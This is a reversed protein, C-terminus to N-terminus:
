KPGVVSSHVKWWAENDADSILDRDGMERMIRKHWYAAWGENMIKTEIQPIFYQAQKHVITLLDQEWAELHRNHDRIFLLIDEEPELPVGLRRRGAPSGHAM